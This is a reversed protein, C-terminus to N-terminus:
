SSVWMLRRLRRRIRDMLNAAVPMIGCRRVAYGFCHLRNSRSGIYALFTDALHYKFWKEGFFERHKLLMATQKELEPGSLYKKENTMREHDGENYLLLPEAVWGISYRLAIRILADWDEGQRLNEDFMVDRLVSTKALLGSPDFSGRKLDELTVTPRLLVRYPIGNAVATCLVADYSRIVRLQYELKDDRWEDDDDLFAIYEGQAARIGTNRAAPLGKNKEHRIYRIRGDPIARVVQGTDDPSGDDIVLLEINQYTQRLVCEIARPV